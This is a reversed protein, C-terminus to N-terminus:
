SASFAYSSERTFITFVVEINGFNVPLVLYM